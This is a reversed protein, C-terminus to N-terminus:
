FAGNVENNQNSLFSPTFILMLLQYCYRYLHEASELRYKTLFM